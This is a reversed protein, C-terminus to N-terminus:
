KVNKSGAGCTRQAVNMARGAWRRKRRTKAGFRRKKSDNDLPILSDQPDCLEYGGRLFSLDRFVSSPIQDTPFCLIINTFVFVLSRSQLFFFANM